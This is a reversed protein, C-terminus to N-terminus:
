TTIYIKIEEYLKSGIGDVNQIDEITKFKGKTERYAIIAKAKAEGIGPITLLKEKTATNINILDNENQKDNKKSGGITDTIKDNICGDNQINPCVCEKEVVKIVTDVINSNKVEEKTYIIIVMENTVKKALNIVSTDANEILGGALKIVDNVNSSCDVIYVGPKKIAGKIDINCKEPEKIESESMEKEITTNNTIEIDNFKNSSLKNKLLILVIFIIILIIITLPYKIRKLIKM